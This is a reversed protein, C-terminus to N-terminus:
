RLLLSSVTHVHIHHTVTVIGTLLLVLERVDTIPEGGGRQLKLPCSLFMCWRCREASIVSSIARVEM